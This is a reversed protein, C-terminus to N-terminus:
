CRNSAEKASMGQSRLQKYKLRRKEKQYEKPVRRSIGSCEKSCYIFKSWQKIGFTTGNKRVALIKKGCLKCNKDEKPTEHLSPHYKRSVIMLNEPRNDHKDGNIHHVLENSELYRGIKKEMVIRHELVYGHHNANPHDPNYVVIYGKVETFSRSGVKRTKKTPLYCNWCLRAYMNAKNGKCNQCIKTYM